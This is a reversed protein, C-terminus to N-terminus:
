VRFREASNTPWRYYTGRSGTPQMDAVVRTPVDLSGGETTRLKVVNSWVVHAVDTSTVRVSVTAKRPLHNAVIKLPQDSASNRPTVSVTSTDPGCGAGLFVVGAACLMM